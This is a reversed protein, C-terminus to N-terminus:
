LAVVNHPKQLFPIATGDLPVCRHRTQVAWLNESESVHRLISIIYHVLFTQRCARVWTALLKISVSFLNLTDNVCREKLIYQLTEICDGSILAEATV